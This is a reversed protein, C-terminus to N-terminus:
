EQVLSAMIALGEEIRRFGIKEICCTNNMAAHRQVLAILEKVSMSKGTALLQVEGDEMNDMHYVYGTSDIMRCDVGYGMVARDPHSNWETASTIYTLEDDGDCAIIAPWNVM